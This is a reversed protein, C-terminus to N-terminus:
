LAPRAAVSAGPFVLDTRSSARSNSWRPGSKLRTPSSTPPLGQFHLPAGSQLGEDQSRCPQTSPLDQPARSDATLTLIAKVPSCIIALRVKALDCQLNMGLSRCTLGM